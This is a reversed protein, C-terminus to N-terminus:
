DLGLLLKDDPIGRKLLQLIFVQSSTRPHLLLSSFLKLSKKVFIFTYFRYSQLPYIREERIFYPCLFFIPRTRHFLVFFFSTLDQSYLTSILLILCTSNLFSSKGPTSGFSFSSSSSSLDPPLHQLRHECRRWQWKLCSVTM